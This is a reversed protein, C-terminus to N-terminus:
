ESHMNKASFVTKPFFHNLVLATETYAQLHNCETRRELHLCNEM